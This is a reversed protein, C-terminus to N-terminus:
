VRRRPRYDEVYDRSNMKEIDNVALTPPALGRYQRKQSDYYPNTTNEYLMRALSRVRTVPDAVAQRARMALGRMGESKDSHEYQNYAKTYDLTEGQGLQDVLPTTQNKLQNEADGTDLRPPERSQGAYEDMPKPSTIPPPTFGGETSFDPAAGSMAGGAQVVGGGAGGYALRVSGDVPPLPRVRYFSDDVPPLPRIINDQVPPLPRVGNMPTFTADDRLRRLLM